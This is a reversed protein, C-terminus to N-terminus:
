IIVFFKLNFLRKFSFTKFIAVCICGYMIPLGTLDFIVTVLFCKKPHWGGAQWGYTSCLSYNQIYTRPLLPTGACHLGFQVLKLMDLSVRYLTWTSCIHIHILHGYGPLPTGTFPSPPTLDLADHIITM